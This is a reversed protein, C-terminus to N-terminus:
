EDKGRIDDIIEKIKRHLPEITEKIRDRDLIKVTIPNKGTTLTNFVDKVKGKIVGLGYGDLAM